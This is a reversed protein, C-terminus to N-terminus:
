NRITSQSFVENPDLILIVSGDGMITAGSILPLEGLYDGLSKIVVEQRHLLEDVILGLKRNGSEVVVLPLSQSHHSGNKLGLLDSLNVLGLVENRLTMARRKGIERIQGLGVKTTESVADLPIAYIQSQVRVLLAEIIALTLPLSLTFKTGQGVKSCVNIGGKLAKINNRVVDMGVGRGSIDTVERATSFGPAFILELVEEKSLRGLDEELLLGKEVAKSAIIEPDIGRGDDEVEIFVFNGEHYARMWIHGQAPKGQQEREAPGELGHDAANRVLHILPDGIAEVVTKDLETEEGEFILEIQKGSKRSLDRVLRPFRSFVTRLPIMRVQMITDQLDDSIRAMADTTESLDQVIKAPDQGGELEKTLLAFRNRNIILEGILNMLHDLKEHDVRITSTTKAKYRSDPRAGSPTVQGQSAGGQSKHGVSDDQKSEPFVKTEEIVINEIGSGLKFAASSQGAQGKFSQLATFVQEQLIDSEQRLLHALKDAELESQRAHDVLDAIQQAYKKAEELEMYNCANALSQFSRYLGDRAEAVKEGDELQSLGREINNFQQDVVQEFVRVDELDIDLTGEENGPAVPQKLNGTGQGLEQLGQQLRGLLESIDPSIVQGSDQDIATLLSELKDAVALLLDITEGDPVRKEKRYFNLLSEAEHTLQNFEKFGIIGSNGKLNHFYRFIDQVLEAAQEPHKELALLATNLNVTTEKVEDLFDNLHDPTTLTLVYTNGEGRGGNSSSSVDMGPEGQGDPMASEQRPQSKKGKQGLAQDLRELLTEDLLEGETGEQELNDLIQRLRDTAELILDMLDPSNVLQGKKIRELISETRHTLKNIQSLNLFGSAGKLSHMPRFITDVLGLQDPDKELVLLAPEIAELHERAEAVFDAIIDNDLM